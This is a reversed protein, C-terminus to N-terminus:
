RGYDEPYDREDPRDPVGHLECDLWFRIRKDERAFGKQKMAVAFSKEKWERIANARCYSIFAAFMTRAQVKQGPTKKVCDRLFNGVPDLDSRHEEGLAKVDPPDVLGEALFALAGEVLWNLIGSAETLIDEVVEPLPKQEEDPITVPWLVFKMRRWIGRDLGGIEPMQNGSMFPIFEPVLDFFGHNLHRVPMPESGTMAKVLGERLPAGRPLEAIAVFRKGQLRAFDPTAKDGSQELAGTISEPKLRGAYAALMRALLEMFVSKGNAGDGYLFILVQSSAGGVLARGAAVQLFRRQEANPQFRELFTMFKPCRADTDYTWPALKAIMHDRNHPELTVEAAKKLRTVDPDPCDLDEEMFRRFKLTGNQVNFLMHQSDIDSPPVTRHPAAQAIMAVTRARNGSSVAFKRRDARRKGLRERAAEGAKFATKEGESLDDPARKDLAELADILAKDGPTPAIHLAELKIRRATEQALREIGEQGGEYEWHTGKWCHWGVERVYLLESGFHALLRKGNDTDNQDLSACSDLVKPDAGDGGGPPPGDERPPSFAFVDGGAEPPQPAAGEVM